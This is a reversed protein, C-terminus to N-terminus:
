RVSLQVKEEEEVAAEGQRVAGSASGEGLAAEVYKSVIPVEEEV